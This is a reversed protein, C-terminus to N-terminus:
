NGKGNGVIHAYKNNSDDINFKGQVHQYQGAAITDM